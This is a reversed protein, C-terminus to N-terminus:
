EVVLTGVRRIVIEPTVTIRVWVSYQGAVLVKGGTGILGQAYYTETSSDYDWTADFWDGSVPRATTEPAIIAMSVPKSSLVIPKGAEKAAVAVRVHETSLRSVAVVTRTVPM